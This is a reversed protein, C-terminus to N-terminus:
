WMTVSDTHGNGSLLALFTQNQTQFFFDASIHENSGQLWGNVNVRFYPQTRDIATQDQARVAELLLRVLEEEDTANGIHHFVPVGFGQISIWPWTPETSPDLIDTLVREVSELQEANTHRIFLEAARPTLSTIPYSGSFSETGIFGWVHVQAYTIPADEQATMVLGRFPGNSGSCWQTLTLDRVEVRLTAYIERAAEESLNGHITVDAPNEPLTLAAEVYAPHRELLEMLREAAEFTFLINRRITSGSTTEFFITYTTSWGWHHFAPGEGRVLGIHTALTELLHETLEEDDLPLARLRHEEYTFTPRGGRNWNLSPSEIRVHVVQSVTIERNLIVDRAINAGSIFAVNLLVLLLLGPLAQKINGLRKTAILEYAFYAVLALAYFTVIPIIDLGVRGSLIISVAPLCILFAVATRISMQLHRNLSPSQATESKRRKFLLFAAILYLLALVATYVIGQIFADGMWPSFVQFVFYFVINYANDGLIGFNEASVVQTLSLVMSVFTSLLIRPLFLILLAAVINTFATGTVSMAMLTATIVLLCGVTLGLTSLLVSSWNIIVTVEAPALVYILLTIGTSLWIGGVVWTFIAATFSTFLSERKHPIAHYFDSSNRQNLCSFLFLTMFPAFFPMALFPAAENV